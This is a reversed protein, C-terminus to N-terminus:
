PGITLGFQMIDLGPPQFPCALWRSIRTDQTDHGGRKVQIGIEVADAIGSRAGRREVGQLGNVEQMRRGDGELIQIRQHAPRHREIHIGQLRFHDRAAAASPAELVIGQEAM